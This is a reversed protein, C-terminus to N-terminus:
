GAVVGFGKANSVSRRSRKEVSPRYLLFQSSNALGSAGTMSKTTVTQSLAAPSIQGMQGPWGIVAWQPTSSGDSNSPVSSAFFRSNVRTAVIRFRRISSKILKGSSFSSRSFISFVTLSRPLCHRERAPEGSFREARSKQEGDHHAGADHSFSQRASICGNCQERVADSSSAAKPHQDSNEPGDGAGMEIRHHSKGKRDGSFEFPPVYQRVDRRLDDRREDAHRRRMQHELKREKGDRRM